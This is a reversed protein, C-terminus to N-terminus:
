KIKRQWFWLENFNLGLTISFYNEKVLAQPSAQRHKWEFGLNIVTKGEPTPLGLGCSIGYDKVQNTGVKVYDRNYFTGLRYAIRQVYNGRLHPVYELGVSAKYRNNFQQGQVVEAGNDGILAPFAAKAWDQYTFDAEVFLRHGRDHLYSIGVGVTNPQYYKDKINMYGVTDAKSDATIDWYAGWTHGRMTKKPSYVAGLTVRDHRSVPIKYQAGFLINWDRIQM